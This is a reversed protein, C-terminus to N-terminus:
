PKPASGVDWNMSMFRTISCSSTRRSGRGCILSWRRAPVPRLRCTPTSFACPIAGQPRPRTCPWIRGSSCSTSQIRITWLCPSASVRRATTNMTTWCMPSFLSAAIKEGVAQAQTVAEQIHESLHELMVVFEDGGFRAVTDDERVCDLLRQAVQQLLMDGKHHGRTDNLSKFNDLDIFLLAGRRRSRTSSALAQRLRDILLRRNPLHTLPDYFALHRIEQEAAKRQTIDIHMGVYHTVEGDAGKVSTITLWQPYVEGNKRRDWVEGQWSGHERISNWMDAYFDAGHYGSKLVMGPKKGVIDEPQYGTIETFARNVRLIVSHADTIMMAEQSEFATAAVRLDVEARRSERLYLVVSSVAVILMSGAAAILIFLGYKETRIQQLEDLARPVHLSMQGDAFTRSVLVFPQQSHDIAVAFPYAKDHWADVQLVEFEGKGYQM